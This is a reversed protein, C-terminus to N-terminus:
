ASTTGYASPSPPFPSAAARKYKMKSYRTDSPTYSM